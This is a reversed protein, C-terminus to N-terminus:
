LRVSVGTGVTDLETVAEAVGLAGGVSESVRCSLSEAETVGLQVGVKMIVWLEDWVLVAVSVAEGKERVGVSLRIRVGVAVHPRVLVTEPRFDGVRESETVTVGDFDSVPVTGVGVGVPVKRGVRVGVTVTVPVPEL